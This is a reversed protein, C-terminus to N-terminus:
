EKIERILNNIEIEFAGNSAIKKEISDASAMITTHDRGFMKGINPFSMETIARILYITVHRAQAIDKVRSKSKLEAQSVGYRKEVAAFIKDITVAIPEEDGLFESM